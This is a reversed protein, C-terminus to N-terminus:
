RIRMGSEAIVSNCRASDRSGKTQVWAVFMQLQQRSPQYLRTATPDVLYPGYVSESREGGAEGNGHICPHERRRSILGLHAVENAIGVHNWLVEVETYRDHRCIHSIVLQPDHLYLKVVGAPISLYPRQDICPSM